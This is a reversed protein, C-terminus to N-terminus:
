LVVLESWSGEATITNILPLNAVWVLAVCSRRTGLFEAGLKMEVLEAPRADFWERRQCLCASVDSEPVKRWVRGSNTVGSFPCEKDGRLRGGVSDADESFNPYLYSQPLLMGDLCARLCSAHGGRPLVFNVETELWVIKTKDTSANAVNVTIFSVGSITQTQWLEPATHFDVHGDQTGTGLLGVTETSTFRCKVVFNSNETAFM